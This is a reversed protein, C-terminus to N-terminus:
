MTGRPAHYSQIRDDKISETSNLTSTSDDDALLLYVVSITLHIDCPGLVM